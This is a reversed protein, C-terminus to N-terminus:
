ARVEQSFSDRCAYKIKNVIETIMADSTETKGLLLDFLTQDPYDLLTSFLAIEEQSLLNYEMEVFNSLLIDLELMGRRCRWRLKSMSMDGQQSM